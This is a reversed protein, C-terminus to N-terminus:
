GWSQAAWRPVPGLLSRTAPPLLGRRVSLAVPEAASAEAVALSISEIGTSSMAERTLKLFSDPSRSARVAAPGGEEGRRGAPDGGEEGLCDAAGGGAAVAAAGSGVCLLRTADQLWCRAGRVGNDDSDGAEGGLQNEEEERGHKVGQRGAPGPGAAGERGRRPCAPRMAAADRDAGQIIILGQLLLCDRSGADHARRRGVSVLCYL